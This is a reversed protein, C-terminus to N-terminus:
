FDIYFQYPEEISGLFYSMTVFVFKACYFFIFILWIYFYLKGYFYFEFKFEM